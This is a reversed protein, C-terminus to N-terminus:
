QSILNLFTYFLHIYFEVKIGLYVMRRLIIDRSQFLKTMAFFTDTAEATGLQEGKKKKIVICRKNNNSMFCLDYDVHMGPKDYLTNQFPHAHM